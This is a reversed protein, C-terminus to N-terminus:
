SAVDDKSNLFLGIRLNFWSIYKSSSIVIDIGLCKLLHKLTTTLM